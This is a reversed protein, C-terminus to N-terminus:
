LVLDAAPSLSALYKAARKAQARGLANLPVDMQGQFRHEANFTTQGHRWLVLKFLPASRDTEGRAGAPEREM